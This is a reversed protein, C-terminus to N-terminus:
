SSPRRPRFRRRPRAPSRLLDGQRAEPRRWPTSTSGTGVLFFALVTGTPPDPLSVQAPPGALPEGTSGMQVVTGKAQVVSWSLEQKPQPAVSITLPGPGVGTSAFLTLLRPGGAGNKVETVSDLQTWRVGGGTLSPAPATGSGALTTIGVLVTNARGPRISADPRERGGRTANRGLHSADRGNATHESGHHSNSKSNLSRHQHADPDQSPNSGHVRRAPGPRRSTCRRPSAAEDRANGWTTM